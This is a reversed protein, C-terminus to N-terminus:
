NEKVPPLQGQTPRGFSPDSIHISDFFGGPWIHAKVPALIM